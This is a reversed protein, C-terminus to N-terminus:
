GAPFEAGYEAAVLRYLYVRDQTEVDVSALAWTRTARVCKGHASSVEQETLWEAYFSKEAYLEPM